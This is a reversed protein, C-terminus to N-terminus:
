QLLFDEIKRPSISHNQIHLTYIKILQETLVNKVLRMIGHNIQVMGLTRIHHQLMLQQDLKMCQCLVVEVINKGDKQCRQLFILVCPSLFHEQQLISM